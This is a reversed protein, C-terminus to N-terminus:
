RRRRLARVDDQGIAGPEAIAACESCVRRRQMRKLLEADPVALDIVVLPQAPLM